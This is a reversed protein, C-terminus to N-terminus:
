PRLVTEYIKVVLPFVTEITYSQIKKLNNDKIRDSSLDKMVSSVAQFLTDEDDLDFLYGNEANEILDSHGKVNSALVPLGLSMAEMINFPLGESKSSSISIDCACLTDKIDVIYGPTLIVDQLHDSHIKERCFELKTGTGALILKIYPHSTKIKKFNEILFIQNKRDSFEGPYIMVIDEKSLGLYERILTRKEPSCPPSCHIGMGPINIIDNSCLKYKVAIEFDERNMTLLVDTAPICLKEALIYIYKKLAPSNNSFLYGHAIHILKSHKNKSLMLAVRTIFGALTSNSIILDYNNQSLLAKLQLISGINKLSLIKKYFTINFIRDAFPIPEEGEVAVDVM